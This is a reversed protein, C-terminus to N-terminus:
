QPIELRTDITLLYIEGVVLGFGSDHYIHSGTTVKLEFRVWSELTKECLITAIDIQKGKRAILKTRFRRTRRRRLSLVHVLAHVHGGPAEWNKVLHDDVSWFGRWNKVEELIFLKLTVPNKSIDRPVVFHKQDVALAHRHLADWGTYIWDVLKVPGNSIKKPEVGKVSADQLLPNSALM